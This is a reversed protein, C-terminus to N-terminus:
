GGTFAKPFFALIVPGHKVMESLTYSKGATDEVTFDPAVDGAQHDREAGDVAGALLAAVRHRQVEGAGGAVDGDDATQELLQQPPLRLRLLRETHRADSDPAPDAIADTIRYGIGAVGTTDPYGLWTVQVPAPTRAFLPLRKGAGDALVRAPNGVIQQREDSLHRHPSALAQIDPAMIIRRRVARTDPIVNMHDIEGEAMDLVGNIILPGAIGAASWATLLRGHIAGVQYTGFLDRLYAPVTAFGGGYFSIIVFALAVLTTVALAVMVYSRRM